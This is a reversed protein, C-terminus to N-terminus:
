GGNTNFTCTHHEGKIYGHVPCVSFTPTISFYPLKTNSAIKKVLVMASEGDPMREGLYTHFITGGTYLPQIDNQHELAFILDNTYNVPLHTSNTLYPRKEGATYIKPHHKKDERALRYSAGEAPTAEVNFLNGTERQFDRARESMFNLTDLALKKGEPSAIDKGLLNVCAENMGCLGITSFHNKFSGLYVKTFPMLGSKINREVVRRKIELSDRALRM